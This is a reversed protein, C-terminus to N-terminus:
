MPCFLYISLRDAVISVNYTLILICSKFVPFHSFIRVDMWGDQPKVASLEVVVNRLMVMGDFDLQTLVLLLVYM